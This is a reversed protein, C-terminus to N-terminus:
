PVLRAGGNGYTLCGCASDWSLDRVQGPAFPARATFAPAFGVALPLRPGVAQVGAAIAPATFGRGQDTAGKLLWMTDCLTAAYTKALRKGSFSQQQQRMAAECRPWGSTPGPDKVDSVDLTPAWGVGSAGNNAGPPSLGGRELNAYPANYTTIGYRPKYNQTAAAQQFALLEVDTVIIHTVGRGKFSQASSSQGDEPRAYAFTEVRGIGAAKLAQTLAAATRKGEPVDQVVLGVVVPGSGPRGLTADWPGFWGQAQLRNVLVPALRSWSVMMSHYYYPALSAFLQDDVARAATSFLPVGAKALCGRFTPAQDIQTSINWVAMVRHDQAFYTCTAEGVSSPNQNTELIKLDRFVLKVQRGLLGGAANVAQAAAQAQLETDGPDVYDAGFSAFVQQTDKQTVIGVYVNKEDWGPGREPIGGATAGPVSLGPAGGPARGASSGVTPSTSGPPATAAQGPASLGDGATAGAGVDAALGTTAPGNVAESWGGDQASRLQATSGCATSLALGAAVAVPARLRVKM